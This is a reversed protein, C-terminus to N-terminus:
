GQEKAMEVAERELVARVDAWTVTERSKNYQVPEVKSEIAAYNLAAFVPLRHLYFETTIRVKLHFQTSHAKSKKAAGGGAVFKDTEMREAYSTYHYRRGVGFLPCVPTPSGDSLPVSVGACCWSPVVASM